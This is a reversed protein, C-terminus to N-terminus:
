LPRFSLFDEMDFKVEYIKSLEELGSCKFAQIFDHNGADTQYRMKKYQKYYKMLEKEFNKRETAGISAFIKQFFASNFLPDLVNSAATKGIEEPFVGDVASGAWVNDWFNKMIDHTFLSRNLQTNLDVSDQKPIITEQARYHFLYDAEDTM